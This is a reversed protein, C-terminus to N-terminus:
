DSVALLDYGVDRFVNRVQGARILDYENWVLSLWQSGLAMGENIVV